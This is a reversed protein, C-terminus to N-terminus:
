VTKQLHIIKIQRLDLRGQEAMNELVNTRVFGADASGDLVAKLVKQQPMDVFYMSLDSAKIDYHFLEYLEVALGGFSKIDVIAIKKGKLDDLTKIDGRDARTFIVGGFQDHWQGDKYTKM